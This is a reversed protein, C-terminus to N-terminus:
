KLGWQVTSVRHALVELTAAVIFIKAEFLPSFLTEVLWKM